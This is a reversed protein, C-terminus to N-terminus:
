YYVGTGGFTLFRVPCSNEKRMLANRICSSIPYRRLLITWEDPPYDNWPVSLDVAQPHCRFIEDWERATFVICSDIQKQLYARAQEWSWASIMRRLNTGRITLNFSFLFDWQLLPRADVCSASAFYGELIKKGEEPNKTLYDKWFQLDKNHAPNEKFVTKKKM